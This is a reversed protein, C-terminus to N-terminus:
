ACEGGQQPAVGPVVFQDDAGARGAAFRSQLIHDPWQVIQQHDASGTVALGGQLGQELLGGVGQGLGEPMAVHLEVLQHTRKIRGLVHATRRQEIYQEVKLVDAVAAGHDCAQFDVAQFGVQAVALVIQVQQDIGTLQEPVAVQGVVGIEEGSFKDILQHAMVHAQQLGKDIGRLLTNVVHSQEIGGLALALYDIEVVGFRGPGVGQGQMLDEFFLRAPGRVVDRDIQALLPEAVALQVFLRVAESM